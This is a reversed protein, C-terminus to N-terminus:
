YLGSARVVAVFCLLSRSYGLRCRVQVGSRGEITQLLMLDELRLCKPAWTDRAVVGFWQVRLGQFGKVKSGSGQVM